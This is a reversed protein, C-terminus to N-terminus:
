LGFKILSSKTYEFALFLVANAPIARLVTPGVGAFFANLGGEAYTQRAAFMFANGSRTDTAQVRTKIVDIAFTSLWGVVGALGGSIAMEANSLQDIGEHHFSAFTRNFVEYSLFYPGYGLDRISTTGLGRYLGRVGRKRWIDRIVQLTSPQRQNTSNYSLQQRIKILEIPSTILASVVGSACGALFINTLKAQDDNGLVRLALGYVGFVSANMAAVGLMPSTIGKYLGVFREEAVIRRLADFASSYRPLTQQLLPTGSSASIAVNQQIPVISSHSQAQLRTKITDFPHGAALSAIGGVTGAIFDVLPSPELLPKNTINPEEM